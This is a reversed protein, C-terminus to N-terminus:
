AAKAPLSKLASRFADLTQAVEAGTHALSMYFKADGKLIGRGRFVGNVHKQMAADQRLVSRYDRIDGTAYVVDFLPPEGVVQAPIGAEAILGTLGDMLSRGAAFIQEYAGPERLVAMTALGAVSAVPNGSLTGIQTLFRDEGVLAKDFLGMIEARGGLAALPFGGGIIKGLTCIDPTVGYYEQAGGYAFRFGTV